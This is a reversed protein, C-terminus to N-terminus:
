NLIISFDDFLVLKNSEQPLNELIPLIKNSLLVELGEQLGIKFTYYNKRPFRLPYTAPHCTSFPLDELNVEKFPKQFLDIYTCHGQDICLQLNIGKFFSHM